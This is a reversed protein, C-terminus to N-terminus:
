KNTKTAQSACKEKILIRFAQQTKHKSIVQIRENHILSQSCVAKFPINNKSNNDNFNRIIIIIIIIIIIVSKMDANKWQPRYGAASADLVGM